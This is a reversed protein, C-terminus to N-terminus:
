LSTLTNARVNSFLRHAYDVNRLRIDLINESKLWDIRLRMADAYTPEYSDPMQAALTAWQEFTLGSIRPTTDASSM